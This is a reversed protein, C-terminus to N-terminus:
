VCVYMCAYLCVYVYVYMCVYMCVYLGEKDPLTVIKKLLQSSFGEVVPSFAEVIAIAAQFGELIAIFDCIKRKSYTFEEYFIARSDPHEKDRVSSGM